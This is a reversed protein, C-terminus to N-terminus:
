VGEGGRPCRRGGERWIARMARRGAAVRGQAGTRRQRGEGRGVRRAAACIILKWPNRTDGGTDGGHRPSLDGRQRHGDAEGDFIPGRGYLPRVDRDPAGARRSAPRGAGRAGAAAIYVRTREAVVRNGRFPDVFRRPGRIRGDVRARRVTAWGRFRGRGGSAARPIVGAGSDGGVCSVGTYLGHISTSGTPCSM